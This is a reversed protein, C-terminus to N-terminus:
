YNQKHAERYISHPQGKDNGYKIFIYCTHHNLFYLNLLLRNIQLGYFRDM